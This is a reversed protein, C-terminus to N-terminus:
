LVDIAAELLQRNEREATLYVKIEDFIKDMDKLDADTYILTFINFKRYYEKHKKMEGEFNSMAEANIEASTKNKLGSLRGHTSWPSFEFGQKQLTYPNIVTFDLRYEHRVNLGGYRLEPILLPIKFPNGSNKVFECYREAIEMEYPSGSLRVLSNKFFALYQGIYSFEIKEPRDPIVLGTEMIHGVTWYDRRFHRIESIDNEWKGNKYRPTVFIGYCANKPGIWLEADDASPRKKSVSYYHKFYTRKLFLVTYRLLEPDAALMQQFQYAARTAERGKDVNRIHELMGSFWLAAFEDASTIVTNTIDMYTNYKGGIKANLSMEQSKLNEPSYPCFTYRQLIRPLLASLEASLREIKEKRKQEFLQNETM